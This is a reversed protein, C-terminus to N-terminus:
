RVILKQSEKNTGDTLEIVYMGATLEATNITVSREGAVVGLNNQAVRQGLANYVNVQLETTETTQILVNALGNNSPNPFVVFNTVANLTQVAVISGVVYKNKQDLNFGYCIPLDNRGCEAPFVLSQGQTNIWEIKDGLTKISLQSGTGNFADFVDLVQNINNIDDGSTIGLSTLQTCFGNSEPIANILDCCPMGTASIIGNLLKNVVERIGVLDYGIATMAFTDNAALTIGYRSLRSPHVLGDISAGIIVDGNATNNQASTGVKTIIYETNPFSGQTSLVPASTWIADGVVQTHVTNDTAPATHGCNESVQASLNATAMLALAALTYAFKKM